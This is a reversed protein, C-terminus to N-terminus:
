REFSRCSARFRRLCRIYLVIRASIVCLYTEQHQHSRPLAYNACKSCRAMCPSSEALLPWRPEKFEPRCTMLFRDGCHFAGLLFNQVFRKRPPHSLPNDQNKRSLDM